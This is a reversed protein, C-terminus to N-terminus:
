TPEKGLRRRLLVESGASGVLGPLCAAETFGARAYFARAGANFDSVTAWLNTCRPRTQAVLWDVAQGGLGRGQWAPLVALMEIFPGRLWPWRLALVGALGGSTEIVFRYLSPDSGALYRALGEASYGLRRYPDIASCAAGLTAPDGDALPRLAGGALAHRVPAFLADAESL